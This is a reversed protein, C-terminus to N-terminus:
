SSAVPARACRFGIVVSRYEPEDRSRVASRLSRAGGWASGGRLSRYQGDEPGDSNSQENEVYDGYWDWCWEWVNGAMDYLEYDNPKLQAVPQIKRGGNQDYWGYDKLKAEDDGFFWPSTSGARCAYEWEAETPLRYGDAEHDWQVRTEDRMYCPEFGDRESLANCFDVADFWSLKNAPLEPNQNKSWSDPAREEGMVVIYQKRTLPTRALEFAGLNVKHAPFERSQAMSEKEGSGMLFHDAPISVMELLPAIIPEVPKEDLKPVDVNEIAETAPRASDTEIKRDSGKDERDDVGAISDKQDESSDLEPEDIAPEPVLVPRAAIGLLAPFVLAVGFLLLGRNGGTELLTGVGVLLGLALGMAGAVGIPLTEIRRVFRELSDKLGRM